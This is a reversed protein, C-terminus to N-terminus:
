LTSRTCPQPACSFVAECQGGYVTFASPIMVANISATQEVMTNTSISSRQDERLLYPWYLPYFRLIAADMHDYLLEFM